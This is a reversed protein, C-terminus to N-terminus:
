GHPRSKVTTSISAEKLTSNVGRSSQTWAWPTVDSSEVQVVVPGVRKERSMWSEVTVIDRFFDEGEGVDRGFGDRRVLALMELVLDHFLANFFVAVLVM